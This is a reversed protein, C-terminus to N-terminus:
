NNTWRFTQIISDIQVHMFNQVPELSDHNLAVDFYFSGRVFHETSDTLHFQFSSATNGVLKYTTGFVRKEPNMVVNEQIDYAKVTHKYVLDRSGDLYDKLNNNLPNYSFFIQAKHKPHYLTFWGPRGLHKRSKQIIFDSPYKFTFPCNLELQKKPVNELEIRFYGKPKPVYTEECGLAFFLLFVVWIKRINLM